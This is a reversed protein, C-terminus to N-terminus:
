GRHEVPPDKLTFSFKWPDKDSTIKWEECWHEPIMKDLRQSSDCPFLIPVVGSGTAMAFTSWTGSTISGSIWKGDPVINTPCYRDPFAIIYSRKKKSLQVVMDTSRNVFSEKGHGYKCGTGHCITCDPLEHNVRNNGPFIYGKGNCKGCPESVMFIKHNSKQDKQAVMRRDWNEVVQRVMKDLGRACGVWIESRSKLLSEVVREVIPLFMVPLNRPGTFAIVRQDM